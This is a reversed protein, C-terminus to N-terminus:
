ALTKKDASAIAKENIVIAAVTDTMVGKALVAAVMISAVVAVAATSEISTVIM